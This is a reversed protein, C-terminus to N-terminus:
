APEGQPTSPITPPKRPKGEGIRQAVQQLRQRSLDEIPLSCLERLRRDLEKATGRFAALQTEPSGEVAAPDPLGWHVVTSDQPWIPCSEAADDCVTFVLDFPGEPLDEISKSRAGAADIGYDERLVQLSLPHVRGTPRAGASAAQFREPALRQLLFEGLISRASNGTCLFLIKFPPTTAM